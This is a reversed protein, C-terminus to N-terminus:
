FGAQRRKKKRATTSLGGTFSLGMSPSGTLTKGTLGGSPLPTSTPRGDTFNAGTLPTSSFNAGNLPTSSFNAGTFPTSNFNAGTLPTSSFSAGSTRGSNFPTTKPCDDLAPSRGAGGGHPTKPIKKHTGGQSHKSSSVLSQSSRFLHALAVRHLSFM